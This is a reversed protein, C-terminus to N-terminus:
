LWATEKLSQYVAKPQTYHHLAYEGKDRGVGSIKFGGFPMAADFVNYCNVWVTGARLGRSVTNVVDIDKAWLGSALGFPSSNARKIVEEITKFKLISQVPGFIEDTAIKMHDEVNSFVTPEIYYGATGKRKGGCCLTAGENKGHEIYGLIKKFQEEDVQPGQECGEQLPNGLKKSAALATAKTVFEDYIDEHVFTRSGAACCQGHNFFLANHAELVVKDVDVDKWVIAASKGGLELTCPKLNTAAARGVIQGVETSGTFSVKDVDPHGCVRAGATPGFGPLINLVGAPLGAELALEGARLATLPTQEAVKIVITNGCALAPAVKWAWMLLPFNWPVIAGIVGMPEHLTYGFFNGDVPITKGCIKDAWGAFYRFYKVVLALDANIAWFLPKGNDLSEIAALENTHAEMLDAFKNLIRGRSAGSMKPWPGEDFARRAAAVAIDVDAVDAEAVEMIPTEDHPNFTTFTKGSVADVFKGDILLKPKVNKIIEAISQTAAPAGM